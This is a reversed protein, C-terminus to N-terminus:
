GQFYAPSNILNAMTSREQHVARPITPVRLASSRARIGFTPMSRRARHPRRPLHFVLAPEWAGFPAPLCDWM